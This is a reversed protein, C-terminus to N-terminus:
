IAGGKARFRQALTVKLRARNQDRTLRAVEDGELKRSQAEALEAKASEESLSEVPIAKEALLTLTDGAMQAFGDEVLFSRAGGKAFDIRLEGLGLKAMLAARMPLIGAQGDHLPLQVYSVQEDLVRAEPTILRCRFSKEAM